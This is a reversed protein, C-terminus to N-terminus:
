SETANFARLVRPRWHSLDRREIEAISASLDAIFDDDDFYDAHNPIPALYLFVIGREQPADKLADIIRHRLALFKIQPSIFRFRSNNNGQQAELLDIAIKSKPTVEVQVKGTRSRDWDKLWALGAWCCQYTVGGLTTRMIALDPSLGPTPIVTSKIKSM